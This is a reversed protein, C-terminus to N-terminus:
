LIAALATPCPDQGVLGRVPHHQAPVDARLPLDLGVRGLRALPLHAEDGLCRLPGADLDLVAVEVPVAPAPLPDAVANATVLAPREVQAPIGRHDLLHLLPSM